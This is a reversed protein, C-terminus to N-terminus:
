FVSDGGGFGCGFDYSNMVEFVKGMNFFKYFKSGVVYLVIDLVGLVVLVLFDIELYFKVFEGNWYEKVGDM